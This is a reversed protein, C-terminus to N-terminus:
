GGIAILTNTKDHMCGNEDFMYLGEDYLGNTQSVYYTGNKVISGDEKAYYYHGNDSFLGFGVKIGDIVCYSGDSSLRAVHDKACTADFIVISGDLGFSYFGSPLSDTSKTEIAYTGSKLARGDDDVFYYKEELYILGVGKKVEGYELYYLNTDNTNLVFAEKLRSLAGTSEFYFTSSGDGDFNELNYFGKISMVQITNVLSDGEVANEKVYYREQTDPDEYWGGWFATIIVGILDVSGDLPIAEGPYYDGMKASMSWIKIKNSYTYRGSFLASLEDTTPLIFSEDDGTARSINITEDHIGDRLVVTVTEAVPPAGTSWKEDAYYGFTTDAPCGSTTTYEEDTGAYQDGNKLNPAHCSISSYSISTGSQTAQYTTANTPASNYKIIGKGPTVGHVNAEGETSYFGGSVNITGEVGIDADKLKAVTRATRSTPTWNTVVDSPYGYGKGVWDEVGYVYCNKGSAVTFTSNEDIFMTTGPLFCIDQNILLTANQLRISINGCLPLVYKSTDVTISVNLTFSSLSVNGSVTYHVHDDSPDYYREVVASSDNMRFLGSDKGIFVAKAKQDGVISVTVYTFVNETAGYEFRINAEINQIFYQNIIFVKNSNNNMGSSASGGRWGSLQFPEYSNSGNKMTIHGSGTLYGWCYLNSGSEFTMTSGSEMHIQGYSGGCLGNSALICPISVYANSLVTISSGSKMTLKAFLKKTGGSSNITPTAQMVTNNDDSPILLYGGSPITYNGSITGNQKLYVKTGHLYAEGLDFYDENAGIIGFVAIGTEMFVPVVECDDGITLTTNASKSLIAKGSSNPNQVWAYFQYGSAPTAKVAFGETGMKSLVTNSTIASGDVTYTGNTAPLFTVNVSKELAAAVNTISISTTTAAADSKLVVTCTASPNMDLTYSGAATKSSGNITVTGKNLTVTFDFSLHAVVGSSNTITLTSTKATGSGGCSGAQGTVSGSIGTGSANWTGNNDASLSLGAVSLSGTVAAFATGIANMAGVGVFLFIALISLMWSMLSSRKKKKIM